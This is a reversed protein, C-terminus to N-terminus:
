SNKYFITTVGHTEREVGGIRMLSGLYNLITYTNEDSYM